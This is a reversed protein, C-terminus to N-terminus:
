PTTVFTEKQEKLKQSIKKKLTEEKDIFKGSKEMRRIFLFYGVIYILFIINFIIRLAFGGDSFLSSYVLSLESSISEKIGVNSSERQLLESILASFFYSFGFVSIFFFSYVKDRLSNYVM